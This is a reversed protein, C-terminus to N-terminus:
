ISSDAACAAIEQYAIRLRSELLAVHYLPALCGPTGHLLRACCGAILDSQEFTVERAANLAPTAQPFVTKASDLLMIASLNRQLRTPLLFTLSRRAAPWALLRTEDNALFKYAAPGGQAADGSLLLLSSAQLLGSRIATATPLLRSWPLRVGTPLIRRMVFAGRGEPIGDARWAKVLASNTIWAMDFGESDRIALRSGERGFAVIYHDCGRYLEARFLHPLYGMDLPGLLVPGELLWAFLLDLAEQADYHAPWAAVEFPIALANLAADLGRDPDMWPGLLRNPDWPCSVVGFPVGTLAEFLLLRDVPPAVCYADILGLSHCATVNGHYLFARRNQIV